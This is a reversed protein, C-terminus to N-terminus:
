LSSFIFIEFSIAKNRQYKHNDTRLTHFAWSNETIKSSTYYFTVGKKIHFHM